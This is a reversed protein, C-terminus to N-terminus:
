ALSLGFIVAAIASLISPAYLRPTESVLPPAIGAAGTDESATGADEGATGANKGASSASDTEQNGAASADGDERSPVAAAKGAPPACGEPTCVGLTSNSAPALTPVPTAPACGGPPCPDVAAQQQAVPTAPACGGPPCSPVIAQQNPIIPTPTSPSEGCGETCVAIKVVPEVTQITVFSATRGPCNIVEPACEVVVRLQAQDTCSTTPLPTQALITTTFAMFATLLITRSM